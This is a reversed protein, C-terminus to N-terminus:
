FEYSLDLLEKFNKATKHKTSPVTGERVLQITQFGASQAADLEQEIDSLFLIEETKLNLTERIKKYSEVERKAGISTDFYNSFHPTLDGFTTHAFLLKQAAVSGSSYVSLKINKKNWFKLVEPVDDYVHSKLEGSEYGAKWVIGQLNKLATEKLDLKASRLFHQILTNLNLDVSQSPSLKNKTEEFIEKVKDRYTTAFTEFNKIFYPFLVDHVFAISTTTGEIDTLIYKIPRSKIM